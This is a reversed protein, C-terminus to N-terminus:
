FRTMLAGAFQLGIQYTFLTAECRRVYASGMLGLEPTQIYVYAGPELSMGCEILAGNANMDVVRANRRKTRGRRDQWTIRVKCGTPFRDCYRNEARGASDPLPAELATGRPSTGLISRLWNM